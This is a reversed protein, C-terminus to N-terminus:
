VQELCYYYKNARGRLLRRWGDVKVEGPKECLYSSSLTTIRGDQLAQTILLINYFYSAPVIKGEEEEEEHM